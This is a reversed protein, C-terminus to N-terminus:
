SQLLRPSPAELPRRVNLPGELVGRAETGSMARGTGSAQDGGIKRRAGRGDEADDRAGQAAQVESVFFPRRRVM